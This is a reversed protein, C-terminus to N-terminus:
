STLAAIPPSTSSSALLQAINGAMQEMPGKVVYHHAGLGKARQMDVQLGSSSLIIIGLGTVEQEQLWELVDFGNLGPMNLDLVMTDPLPFRDRDSFDGMGSLYNIAVQGDEAEGVIRVETFRKLGRRLLLRDDESDDVLLIKHGVDAM